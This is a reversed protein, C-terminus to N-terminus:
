ECRRVTVDLCVYFICYKNLIKPNIIYQIQISVTPFEVTEGDGNSSHNTIITQIIQDFESLQSLPVTGNIGSRGMERLLM